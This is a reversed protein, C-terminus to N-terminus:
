YLRYQGHVTSTIRSLTTTWADIELSTPDIKQQFVSDGAFIYPQWDALMSNPVSTTYDTTTSTDDIERQFTSYMANQNCEQILGQTQSSGIHTNYDSSQLRTDAKIDSTHTNQALTRGLCDVNSLFRGNIMTRESYLTIPTNGVRKQHLGICYPFCTAYIGDTICDSNKDRQCLPMVYIVADVTNCSAPDTVCDFRYDKTSADFDVVHRSFRVPEVAIRLNACTLSNSSNPTDFYVPIRTDVVSMTHDLEFVGPYLAVSCEIIVGESNPNDTCSCGMIGTRTDGDQDAQLVSSSFEVPVIGNEVSVAPLFESEVSQVLTSTGHKAIYRVLTGNTIALVRENVSIIRTSTSGFWETTKEYNFSDKHSTCKWISDETREMLTSLSNYNIWNLWNDGIKGLAILMREIYIFLPAVDPICLSYSMGSDLAVRCRSHTIDWLTWVSSIVLNVLNHIVITVNEDYLPYLFISSVSAISPCVGDILVHVSLLSSQLFTCSKGIDINRNAYTLCINLLETNEKINEYKCTNFTVNVWHGVAVGVDAFMLAFNMFIDFLVVRTKGGNSIVMLIEHMSGSVLEIAFNWIPGILEIFIKVLWMSRQMGKIFINDRIGNNYAEIFVSIVDEYNANLVNLFSVFFLAPLLVIGIRCCFVIIRLLYNIFASIFAVLINMLTNIITSTTDNTDILNPNILKIVYFSVITCVTDVLSFIPRILVYSSCLIFLFIRVDM